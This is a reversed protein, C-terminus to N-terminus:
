RWMKKAKEEKSRTYIFSHPTRAPIIPQIAEVQTLNGQKLLGWGLVNPPCMLYQRLYKWLSQRSRMDSM